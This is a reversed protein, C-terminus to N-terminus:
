DNSWDRNALVTHGFYTTNKVRARVFTRIVQTKYAWPLRKGRRFWLYQKVSFNQASIDIQYVDIGSQDPSPTIAVKLPVVESPALTGISAEPEDFLRAPNDVDFNARTYIRIVVGTLTEHGYNYITLPIPVTGFQTQPTLYAFSQGGTVNELNKHALGEIQKTATFLDKGERLLAAFSDQEAKRTEDERKRLEVQQRDHEDRDQYVARMEVIFLAFSILIWVAREGNHFHDARVTMIAAVVGLFGIAVTPVPPKVDFWGLCVAVIVAQLYFGWSSYQPVPYLAISKTRRWVAVAKNEALTGGMAALNGVRQLM